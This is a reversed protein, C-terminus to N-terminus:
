REMTEKIKEAVMDCDEPAANLNHTKMIGLDTVIVLLDAKLDAHELTKTACQVPCGDIVVITRGRTAEIMPSLHAGIGALCVLRGRQDLALKIGAQNAIQGVNSGGACTFIVVDESACTCSGVDAL